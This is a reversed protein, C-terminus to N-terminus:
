VVSTTNSVHHMSKKVGFDAVSSLGVVKQQYWDLLYRRIAILKRNITDRSFTFIALITKASRIQNCNGTPSFPVFPLKINDGTPPSRSAPVPWIKKWFCARRDSVSIWVRHLSAPTGAYAVVPPRTPHGRLHRKARSGCPRFQPRCQIHHRSRWKHPM